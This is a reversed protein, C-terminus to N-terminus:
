KALIKNQINLITGRIRLPCQLFIYNFVYINNINPSFHIYNFM